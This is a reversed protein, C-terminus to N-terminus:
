LLKITRNSEILIQRIEDIDKQYKLICRQKAENITLDTDRIYVANFTNDFTKGKKIPVGWSWTDISTFEFSAKLTNKLLNLNGGFIHIKPNNFRDNLYNCLLRRIEVFGDTENTQDATVGGGGIGWYEVDKLDINNAVMDLFILKEDFTNGQIPLILEYNRNLDFHKIFQDVTKEMYPLRDKFRSGMMNMMANTNYDMCVAYDPKIQEIKEHYEYVTFPYDPYLKLINYGGSDIMLKKVKNFIPHFYNSFCKNKGNYYMLVSQLICMNSYDVKIRKNLQLLLPEEIVFYFDKFM